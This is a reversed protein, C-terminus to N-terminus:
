FKGQFVFVRDGYLLISVIYYLWSKPWIKWVGCSYLCYMGGYFLPIHDTKATETIWASYITFKYLILVCFPFYHYSKSSFTQWLWCWLLPQLKPVQLMVFKMRFLWESCPGWVYWLNEKLSSSAPGLEQRVDGVASWCCILLRSISNDWVNKDVCPLRKRTEELMMGIGYANSIM